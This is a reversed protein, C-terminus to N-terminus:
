VVLLTALTGGFIAIGYPFSLNPKSTPEDDNALNLKGGLFLVIMKVYFGKLINFLLKKRILIILAVIGGIVFTALTAHFIFTPGKLAGIALLLKVDGAGMGGM